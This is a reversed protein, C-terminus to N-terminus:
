KKAVITIQVNMCKFRFRLQIVDWFKSDTVFLNLIYIKLKFAVENELEEAL